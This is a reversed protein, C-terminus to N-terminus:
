SPILARGVGQTFLRHLDELAILAHGDGTLVRDPLGERHLLTGGADESPEGITPDHHLVGDAQLGRLTWVHEESTSPNRFGVVISCPGQGLVQAVTTWDSTMAPAKGLMNGLIMRVRDLDDAGTPEQHLAKM